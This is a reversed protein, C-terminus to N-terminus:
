ASAAFASVGTAPSLPPHQAAFRDIRAAIGVPDRLVVWHGADIPERAYDGLWKELGLSLAPGVYRDRLPVIFQVPAHARRARPHFLRDIFNARYLNLGNIANRLQDPDREARVHESLRLWLPWGRAV